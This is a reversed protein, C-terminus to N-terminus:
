IADTVMRKALIDEQNMLRYRKGELEQWAGSYRGFLIIDGPMCFTVEDGVAVVYGENTRMEGDRKSAEPVYLGSVTEVEIEYAMVRQGYLEYPFQDILQKVDVQEVTVKPQLVVEKPKTTWKMETVNAGNSM